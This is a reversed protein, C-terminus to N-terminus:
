ASTDNNARCATDVPESSGLATAGRTDSNPVEHAFDVVALPAESAATWPLAIRRLTTASSDTDSSLAGNSAEMQESGADTMATTHVAREFPVGTLGMGPRHHAVATIDALGDPEVCEPQLIDLVTHTLTDDSSGGVAGDNFEEHAYDLNTEMTELSPDGVRLNSECQVSYLPNTRVVSQLRLTKSSPDLVFTADAMDTNALEATSVDVEETTTDLANGYSASRSRGTSDAALEPRVVVLLSNLAQWARRAKDLAKAARKIAVDRKRKAKHVAKANQGSVLPAPNAQATTTSLRTDSCLKCNAQNAHNITNCRTCDWRLAATADGARGGEEARQAEALAAAKITNRATTLTKSATAALKAAKTTSPLLALHPEPVELRSLDAKLEALLAVM